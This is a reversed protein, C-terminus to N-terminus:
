KPCGVAIPNCGETSAGKEGSRDSGPPYITIIQVISGLAQADAIITSLLESLAGEGVYAVREPLNSDESM